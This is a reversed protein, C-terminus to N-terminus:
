GTKLNLVNISNNLMIFVKDPDPHAELTEHYPSADQIEHIARRNKLKMKNFKSIVEKITTGEYQGKGFLRALYGSGDLRPSGEKEKRPTIQSVQNISDLMDDTVNGIKRDAPM